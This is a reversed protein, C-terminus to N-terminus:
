EGGPESVTGARAFHRVVRPLTLGQVIVSFIVVVLTATIIPDRYTSGQLALAM